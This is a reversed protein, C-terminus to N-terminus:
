IICCSELELVTDSRICCPELELIISTSVPSVTEWTFPPLIFAEAVLLGVSRMGLVGVLMAVGCGAGIRLATPIYSVLDLKVACAFVVTAAANALAQAALQGGM